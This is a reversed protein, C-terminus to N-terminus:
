VTEDAENPSENMLVAGVCCSTVLLPTIMGPSSISEEGQKQVEYRKYHRKSLDDPSFENELVDLQSEEAPKIEICFEQEHM